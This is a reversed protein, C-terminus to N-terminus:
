ASFAKYLNSEWCMTGAITSSSRTLREKEFSLGLDSCFLVPFVVSVVTPLLQKM